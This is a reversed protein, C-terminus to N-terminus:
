LLRVVYNGRGSLLVDRHAVHM